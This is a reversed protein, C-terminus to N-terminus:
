YTHTYVGICLRLLICSIGKKKVWIGLDNQVVIDSCLIQTIIEGHM